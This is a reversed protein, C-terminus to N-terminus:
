FLGFIFSIIAGVLIVIGVITLIISGFFIIAGLIAIILLILIIRTLWNSSNFSYVKVRPGYQNFQDYYKAEEDVYTPTSDVHVSDNVEEITVGDFDRREDDSLVRTKSSQNTYSTDDSYSTKDKKERNNSKYEQNHTDNMTMDKYCGLILKICDIIGYM